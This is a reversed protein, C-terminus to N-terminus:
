QAGGLRKVEEVFGWPARRRFPNEFRGELRDAMELRVVCNRTCLSACRDPQGSAHYPNTEVGNRCKGCLSAIAGAVRMTKGAITLDEIDATRIAGLPCVAELDKCGLCVPETLMADPPLPADTLIIQIRQRPGFRPTLLLGCVGIEGLGARVAADDFDMMVNPAPSGERVPIGVPPIETPLNPMPVAEWGNDELFESIRYTATALVRNNLWDRGYQRYLDFQTGEEVGRLTGRTIRKGVVLVSRVEPFISAPHKDAPLDDFREIPAVGLLDAGAVPAHERLRAAFSEMPETTTM